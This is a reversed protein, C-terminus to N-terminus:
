GEKPGTDISGSAVAEEWKDRMYETDSCSLVRIVHDVIVAAAVVAVTLPAERIALLTEEL